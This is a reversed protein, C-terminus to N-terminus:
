LGVLAVQLPLFVFLSGLPKWNLHAREASWDGEPVLPIILLKIFECAFRGRGRGFQFTGRQCIRIFFSPFVFGNFEFTVIFLPISAATVTTRYPHRKSGTTSGVVEEM